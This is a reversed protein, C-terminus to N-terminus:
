EPPLIASNITMNLAQGHLLNENYERVLNNYEAVLGDIDDYLASVAEKRAMLANRRSSSAFCGPANACNNFELIDANLAAVDTEYQATKTSIVGELEKIKLSLKELSEEIERFVGIYSRYFEAILDQNEFIEGYHRDLEAPLDAIETGIRVYLEEEKKSEDYLEIEDGLVDSNDQYVEWLIPSLRAKEDMGMRHYVAHLLEHASTAELIGKLEEDPIDYVYVRDNRYCGLVADENEFDRCIQNFEEKEKLEPRTANFIRAGKSTLLLKERIQSMEDSPRYSIGAIIDSMVGFNVAFFAVFLMLIVSSIFFSILRFNKKM